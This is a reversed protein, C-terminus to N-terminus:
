CVPGRVMCATCPRPSLLSVAPKLDRHAFGESHMFTIGEVLQKTIEKAEKEGIPRLLHKQLDGHELYEM